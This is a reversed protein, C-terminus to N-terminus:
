FDSWTPISDSWGVRIKGKIRTVNKVYPFYTVFIRPFIM